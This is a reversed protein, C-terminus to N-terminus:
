TMINSEDNTLFLNIWLITITFWKLLKVRMKDRRMIYLRFRLM